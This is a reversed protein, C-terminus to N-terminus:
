ITKRILSIPHMVEVEVGFRQAGYRLQALCGPNGTVVVKSHTKRINEMKRELIVMSDKYHVINYIGASGCCWSAEELENYSVGPIAKLIKRPQETIKQTHALHCADHYTISEAMSKLKLPVDTETLFETIDKVRRSFNRAREAYKVDDSLIHGYEKMFAGCGASNAVMYDFQYSSFVDITHKALNKATEFDGNHAQLSGCCIQNKPTFVECNCAQLVEVTDKNIEAFMVNMLCGSLFATKYKVEGKPMTIEPIIEDSFKESVTPSLKDIEELNTFIIKMVGSKHLMKRIFSNQYIRLLKSVLKLKSRSGVITRLLFKKVFRYFWSRYSTNDVEVRAAEVMSGYKVGAPCATECAQCDLCFNMEEVFLKTIQMEGRAVSKILKIRGRPSSRENKTMEYTPCVALCMGCHICQQLVDDSPLVGLLRMNHKSNNKM